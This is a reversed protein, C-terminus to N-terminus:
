ITEKEALAFLVREPTAPLHRIWVGAAEHIAAIIAPATATIALEALGKAHLYGMNAPQDVFRVLISPIDSATPFLYQAFGRQLPMGQHQLFEEMLAMGIGQGIAGHVQGEAGIRNIVTGCDCVAAIQLVRVIGTDLDVAVQARQVDYGYQNVPFGQGNADPPSTPPAMYSAEVILGEGHAALWEQHQIQVGHKKIRRMLKRAALHAANGTLTTQRSAGTPGGDPFSTDPRCYHLLELPYNEMARSVILLLTTELGQGLDSAAVQIAIRGGAEVSLRVTSQDHHGFHLNCGQAAGAYGVGFAYRPNHEPWPSLPIQELQELCCDYRANSPILHGSLTVDGDQIANIRRIYLPDLGLQEAAMNFMTENAFTIGTMGWSRMAGMAMNNTYYVETDVKVTPICYPGCVNLSVFQFINAGHHSSSGTDSRIHYEAGLVHGDRDFGMRVHLKQGHRKTHFAMEEERDIWLRVPRGASRALLAAYVAILGDDKGGFSGGMHPQIVRVREPPMNLAAALIDREGTVTHCGLYVELIGDEMFRAVACDNELYCHEIPSLTFSHEIAQAAGFLAQATNGIHYHYESLMNSDSVIDPRALVADTKYAEELEFIAPLEEYQVHISKIASLAQQRTDAAVLAITDYIGYTEKSCLFDQDEVTKGIRLKGTLDAATVIARVWPLRRASEVDLSLIRCRPLPARMVVGELMGPWRIDSVFRASGDAKPLGTYLHAQRLQQEDFPLQDFM